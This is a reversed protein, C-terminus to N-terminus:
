HVKPRHRTITFTIQYMFTAPFLQRLLVMWLASILIDVLHVLTAFSPAQGNGQEMCEM